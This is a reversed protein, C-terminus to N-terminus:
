PRAADSLRRVTSAVGSLIPDCVRAPFNAPLEAAVSELVTPTSDVIEGILEDVNGGAETAIGHRRGVEQWHRRQIEHMRWHAQTRRLAM